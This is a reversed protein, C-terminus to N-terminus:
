GRGSGGAAWDVPLGDGRGALRAGGDAAGHALRRLLAGIRQALVHERDSSSRSPTVSSSASPLAAPRPAPSDSCARVAPRADALALDAGLGSSASSASTLPMRLRRRLFSSRGTAPCPRPSTRAARWRDHEAEAHRAVRAGARAGLRRQRLEIEVGPDLDRGLADHRAVPQDADHLRVRGIM